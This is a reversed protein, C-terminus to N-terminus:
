ACVCKWLQGGFYFTERRENEKKGSNVLRNGKHTCCFCMLNKFETLAMGKFFFLFFSLHKSINRVQKQCVIKLFGKAGIEAANATSRPFFIAYTVTEVATRLFIFISFLLRGEIISMLSHSLFMQTRELLVVCVCQEARVIGWLESTHPAASRQNGNDSSQLSSMKDGGCNTCSQRACSIADRVSSERYRGNYCWGPLATVSSSPSSFFVAVPHSTLWARTGNASKHLNVFFVFFCSAGAHSRCAAFM